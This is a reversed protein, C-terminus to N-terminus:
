KFAQKKFFTIKYQDIGICCEQNCKHKGCNRKKTCKKKCRADDARTLLQSCKIMQDMHGCRCKVATQKNCPPCPGHHCKSICAHPNSPQGCTLRKKCTSTCLPIPDMCNTRQDKEIQTKGCPCTKINEPLLECDGCDGEHCLKKCKHNECKLQKSCVRGCSYTSFEKNEKTCPVTRKEGSCYCNQEIVETCDDCDGSHCSKVCKHVNCNLDKGCEQGCKFEVKQNCQFM